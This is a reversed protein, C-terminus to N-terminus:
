PVVWEELVLLLRELLRELGRPLLRLPSESPLAAPRVLVLTPLELV